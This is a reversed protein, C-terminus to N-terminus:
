SSATLFWRPSGGNERREVKGELQLRRLEAGVRLPLHQVLRAEEGLVERGVEAATAGEEDGIRSLARLVTEKSIPEADRRIPAEAVRWGQAHLEGILAELATRGAEGGPPAVNGKRWTWTRFARSCLLARRMDGNHAYYRGTVYGQWYSIRCLPADFRSDHHERRM